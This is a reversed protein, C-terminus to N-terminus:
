RPSSTSGELAGEAGVFASYSRDASLHSFQTTNDFILCPGSPSSLALLPTRSFPAPLLLSSLSFPLSKNLTLIAYAAWLAASRDVLLFIQCSHPYRHSPHVPQRPLNQLIYVAMGHFSVGEVDIYSLLPM